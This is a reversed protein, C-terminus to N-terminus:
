RGFDSWLAMTCGYTNRRSFERLLNLLLCNGMLFIIRKWVMVSLLLELGTLTAKIASKPQYEKSVARKSPSNWSHTQLFSDLWFIKERPFFFLYFLDIFVIIYYWSLHWSLFENQNPCSWWQLSKLGHTLLFVLGKIGPPLLSARLTISCTKSILPKQDAEISNRDM